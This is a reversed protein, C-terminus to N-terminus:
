VFDVFALGMEPAGFGETEEGRRRGVRLWPVSPGAVAGGLPCDAVVQGDVEVGAGGLVEDLWWGLRVPVCFFLVVCTEGVELCDNLVCALQGRPQPGPPCRQADLRQSLELVLPKHGTGLEHFRVRQM